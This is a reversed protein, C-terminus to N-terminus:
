NVKKYKIIVITNTVVAFISLIMLYYQVSAFESGKIIVMRVSEIIYYTPNLKTIMQAWSPMSEVPTFLGSLLIFLFMCFVTIFMAQSQTESITSILFGIGLLAFLYVAVLLYILAVSGEIVMGFVVISIILGLTLQVLGIIGFPLLKGVIFQMKTIPTVNLQEITGVEKERVINLSTLLVGIITILVCLIGSLMFTKYDFKPNYWDRYDVKFQPSSPVVMEETMRKQAFTSIVDGIYSSAVGAKMSNISNISISITPQEGNIVDKEFKNPIEILVDLEDNEFQKLAKDYNMPVPYVKFYNSSSFADKLERTVVTNDRDIFGISLSNIEFNAAYTLIILQAFPAIFIIKSLMKNRFVQLFEKKVIAIIRKM